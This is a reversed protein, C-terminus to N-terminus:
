TKKGFMKAKLPAIVPWFFIILAAAMLPLALPLSFFVLPSGHGIILAQRMAQEAMDGLVLALVMPAIPYDLKKFLYGLVGFMLMYYVDVMRNNVAYAGIACVYIILPMFIAFKVRLISAFIPAFALVVFFGLVNGMWCSAIFGWVFDAHEKFLMPGPQLGFIMLGGMIVAMTPSGPIGLTIMPITASTGAAHAAAEPAIIGASAGKGFEDANASAQKTFGYAMFSAPTAGGPKFGMWCGILTGMILAKPYHTIDKMGDWIDKLGIRTKIGEVKLGEEVTLFIEGLGFLGIVAVVFNFGGMLVVTGYTMRLQGSVIDMGVAALIFGFLISVVTKLPSKGGLGVFASFTLMMVAFVEAPGFKLAFEALIPAFFTLIFVGFIAGVGHALFALVLAKGPRGGKAMPYGDFTAAVAWPEGPINFLISTISGGYLAGWYIMSLLIIGATPEMVVVVPILIAVGNAGGLGPLVGVIIGLILGVVIIMLNYPQTVVGLGMALNSLNEM